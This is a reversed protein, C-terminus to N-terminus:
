DEKPKSVRLVRTTTTTTCKEVLALDAARLAELDVRHSEQERWSAIVNPVTTGKRRGPKWGDILDTHDGLLARLENSLRGEEAEAAKTYRKAHQLEAVLRLARQDAELEGDPNRYVETLATTTAEHDDVAPPTRTLVHDCWFRGATALMFLWDSECEADWDVEFVEVRFGAFMVVLWCHQLTTVGMEWICQARINAPVGDPWGFRGDTKFQVTGAVEEASGWGEHDSAFGDVTCRAWPHEPHRMWAQEGSVYLGTEDHFELALVLEMRKGIRQRQSEPTPEILGMREYFISTPSSYKSLGILGAIDSGGIGTAREDHWAVDTM